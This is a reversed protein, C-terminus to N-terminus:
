VGSMGCSQAKMVSTTPEGDNTTQLETPPQVPSSAATARGSRTLPTWSMSMLRLPHTLCGQKSPKNKLPSTLGDQAIALCSVSTVCDILRIGSVLLRPHAFVRHKHEGWEEVLCESSGSVM